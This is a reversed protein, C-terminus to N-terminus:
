APTVRLPLRRPMRFMSRGWELSSDDVEFARTRRVLEGIAIQAEMRALHVGLCFHIGGGFALHENPSRTVDFRDADPFKEPDRNASALLALVESGKAIVFEGFRADERLVRITHMVPGDFRLCEEVATKIAAPDARLKALEGPHRALQRVGNTILGITTEFGASLLGIAQHVLEESTLRDGAEEARVLDSLIDAVPARRREAVLAAFYDRMARKAEVAADIAAQPASGVAVMYTTRATWESLRRHDVLPIGMMECTVTVPVPLALDAVVDIEGKELVRSVLSASLAEMGARLTEIARPTFAKAVLRRLRTHTPPDQQLM